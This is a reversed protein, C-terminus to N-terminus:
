RGAIAITARFPQPTANAMGLRITPRGAADRGKLRAYLQQGAKIKVNADASETHTLLEGAAFLAVLNDDLDTVDTADVLKRLNRIGMFQMSNSSDTPIPWVEITDANNISRIDWRQAPSARVGADSDFTCYNDFSIGRTFPVPRGSIRIAAEEIRDFNLGDPPDYYRQGAVLPIAPFMQRLFSWDHDEYLTEQTRQLVDKLIEADDVGVAISTSRSLEARLKSILRTLSQGRM